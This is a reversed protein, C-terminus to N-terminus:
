IFELILTINVRAYTRPANGYYELKFSKGNVEYEDNVEIPTKTEKGDIEIWNYNGEEYISANYTFEINKIKIKKVNNMNQLSFVCQIAQGSQNFSGSSIIIETQKRDNQKEYLDNLATEVNIATEAGAKTYSIDKAYYSYAYVAISSALVIGIIFAIIVEKKLIKKM